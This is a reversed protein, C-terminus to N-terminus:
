SGAEVLDYVNNLIPVNAQWCSLMVKIPLHYDDAVLEHEDTIDQLYIIKDCVAQNDRRLFLVAEGSGRYSNKPITIKGGNKLMKLVGLYIDSLISM